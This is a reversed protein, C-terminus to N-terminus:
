KIPATKDLTEKCIGSFSEFSVEEWVNGLTSLQYHIQQRYERESFNRNDHYSIISPKQKQFHIKMTMNYFNSLRRDIVSSNQFSRYSNRLMFYTRTPNTANKFCTPVKILSKLNYLNCFDKLDVNDMDCTFDGMLFINKYNGLLLGLNKGISSLRGFNHIVHLNYSSCLVWKKKEFETRHFVSRCFLKENFHAQM